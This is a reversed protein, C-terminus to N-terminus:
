AVVPFTRRVSEIWSDVEPAKAIETKGLRVIVLDRQPDVLIRQTEYGAAYFVSEDPPWIWWHAGYGVGEDNRAQMTRAHDVWGEPLLRSGDWMGDRLYLLGIKAFDRATAHLYSSGVWTGRDDFTLTADMGLPQFLRRQAWADFTDGRGVLDGIIGTLLNTTGSSYNFRTGPPVEAPLEAVYAAMDHRGEGFLMELCHSTADDVYDEVFTTGSVMHLLQEVTIHHRPDDSDSWEPVPARDTLTLVGDAVLLGVLTQTISKAMSWSILAEDVGATPGYREDVIQGAQVTVFALSQGLPGSEDFNGNPPFVADLLERRVTAEGIDSATTPWEATPWSTEPAQTPLPVTPPVPDFVQM